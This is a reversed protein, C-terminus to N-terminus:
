RKSLRLSSSSCYKLSLRQILRLILFLAKDFLLISKLASVMEQRQSPGQSEVVSSVARLLREIAIDSVGAGKLRRLLPGNGEALIRSGFSPDRVQLLYLTICVTLPSLLHLVVVM